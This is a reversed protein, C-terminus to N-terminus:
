TAPADTIESQESLFDFVKRETLDRELAEIRGAKQLEAYTTRTPKSMNRTIFPM